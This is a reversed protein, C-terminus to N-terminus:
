KRGYMVSYNSKDTRLKNDSKNRTLIINAQKYLSIPLIIPKINLYNENHLIGSVVGMKYDSGDTSVEGSNRMISSVKKMSKMKIYLRFIKNVQEAEKKDIIIKGDKDKAYGYPVNNKNFGDNPDEPSIDDELDGDENDTKELESSKKILDKKQLIDNLINILDDVISNIDSDAVTLIIFLIGDIFKIKKSTYEKSTNIILYLPTDILESIDIYFGELLPANKFDGKNIIIREDEKNIKKITKLIISSNNDMRFVM